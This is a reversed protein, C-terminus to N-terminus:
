YMQYCCVSGLLDSSEEAAFPATNYINYKLLVFLILMMFNPFKASYTM